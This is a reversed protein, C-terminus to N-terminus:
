SSFSPTLGDLNYVDGPDLEPPLDFETYSPFSPVAHFPVPLASNQSHWLYMSQATYPEYPKMAHYWDEGVSLPLPASTLGDFPNLGYSNISDLTFWPESEPPQVVNYKTWNPQQPAYSIHADTPVYPGQPAQLAELPGYGDHVQSQLRRSLFAVMRGQMFDRITNMQMQVEYSGQGETTNNYGNTSVNSVNSVNSVSSVNSVNSINSVNSLNSALPYSLLPTPSDETGMQLTPDTSCPPSLVGESESCRSTPSLDPVPEHMTISDFSTWPLSSAFSSSSTMRTLENDGSYGMDYAVSSSPDNKSLTPETTSGASWFADQQEQVSTVSWFDEEEQAEQQSEQPIVSAITPDNVVASSEKRKPVESPKETLEMPEAPEEEEEDDDIEPVTPRESEQEEKPVTSKRTGKLKSSCRRRASSACRDCSGQDTCDICGTTTVCVNTYKTDDDICCLILFTFLRVCPKAKVLREVCGLAQGLLSGKTYELMVCSRITGVLRGLAFPASLRGTTRISSSMGNFTCYGLLDRAVFVACLTDHDQGRPPCLMVQRVPVAGDVPQTENLSVHPGVRNALSRRRTPHQPRRLVWLSLMTLVRCAQPRLLLLRSPIWPQVIHYLSSCLITAPLLSPM